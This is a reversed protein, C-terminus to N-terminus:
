ARTWSQCHREAQAAKLRQKRHRDRAEAQPANARPLALDVDEERWSQAYWRGVTRVFRSDLSNAEPWEIKHADDEWGAYLLTLTLLADLKHIIPHSHDGDHVQQKRLMTDLIGSM